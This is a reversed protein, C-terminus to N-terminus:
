GVSYTIGRYKRTIGLPSHVTQHPIRVAHERVFFPATNASANLEVKNISPSHSDVTQIPVRLSYERGLFRAKHASTVMEVRNLSTSYTQGLFRLKM